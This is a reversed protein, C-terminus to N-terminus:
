PREEPEENIIRLYRLLQDRLKENGLDNYVYVLNSISRSLITLNNVPTLYSEQFGIEQNRLLEICDRRSLIKGRNFPDMYVSKEYFRFQVIFHSPLGIGFVPVPQDRWVLREALLICVCSLSIPIGIKRDLVKNLYTNDPDYYNSLNGHFGQIKFLYQRFIRILMDTDQAERLAHKLEAAMRDLPETIEEKKMLGNPFSALLTLAKELNFNKGERELLKKFEEGTEDWRMEELIHVARHNASISEQKAIWEKWKPEERVLSKFELTLRNLTKGEEDNLLRCFARFQKETLKRANMREM